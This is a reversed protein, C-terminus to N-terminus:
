REQKEIPETIKAEIPLEVYFTSGEGSVGTSEAWMRGGHMEILRRSIPLGLGTGGAKRTTSSDVQTFEQFVAELKDPPIGVGTDRVSVLINEDRRTAYISVKGKETFKLANNVLNLMVQSIRTHDAFVEVERDSDDEIFLSLSRESALPSTISVVEELLEQIRFGEPNLNMKGAEIKAMDLVDNILHLLHQGNKQILQLDNNMNETLPGDLEELLVDAFGLISNLPTRLEHSMNALFSTKLRDLERLKAVTAAQEVYLRANQLAVAVQAALTAYIGADEQTFGNVKESQVDFVGLVNDGVIMPVAMESHTEPLLPNPLYGAEQQVDSVIVVQRKRAARAVLSKKANLPIAHGEAAMKRGVEGAGAALLLKQQAADTQYIHAHYINFREKTLDVVSQLLNDPDLVTSTTASVKAVTELESARRAVESYAEQTQEFLRASELALAVQESVQQLFDKDEASIPNQPDDAVALTGIVEGAPVTLPLGAFHKETLEMRSVPRLGGQDFLFGSPLNAMKRYSQWGEHSMARYLRNIEELRGAMEQRLRTGEIAVAIQGCLSELLLQDDPGLAGATSSQVDLVGLVEDGLKIPVAIEGKTEPLLPNPKWDPDNELAPRLVTEGSAAAKGILGEGMRLRHGAARMKEGIEGYGAILVIADQTADNRLLQSHYYNFREKVLTVVRQVLEDLAPAVAIEQAIETSTRVQIGRREFATQIQQQLRNRETVDRAIGLFGTVNGESDRLATVALSVTLHTGDKHVYTWDREEYRGQRAYEVFVDFGEIPRGFEATLEKGRAVVESELHIIAPTQRGVMEEASYGLMREAGANFVTIMGDPETAIISVRTAADLVAQMRANAEALAKEVQKRETIDTVSFRVRPQDGPLRVLRVECPIDKGSSNRHTWEFVQPEGQMAAQIKEMAKETSLRGDPQYTPSMEAPGVKVLEQRSLGYLKLANENPDSFLGSTLDVIGIAEPANEIMSQLLDEAQKRVTIDRVSTARVVRDGTKYTRTLTEVPFTSGDKRICQVEYPEVTELQMKELVLGHLAPVVFQLLNKGIFDTKDTLGFMALAAPNADLITGNDHFVLGEFTADAFRRFREESENLIQETKKRETIDVYSSLVCTEGEYDILHSSLLAWYLSGDTRRFQVEFDDIFGQKRLAELVIKRDDPNAYFNGTPFGILKELQVQSVDAIAQNAYLVIGDSLRSILMPVRVRELVTKFRQQEAQLAAEAQKRETIDLFAGQTAVEGEYTTLTSYLLVDIASGDKRLMRTEYRDPVDEGAARRRAMDAVFQREDPHIFDMIPRGITEAVEYGLYRAAEQGVFKTIGKQHIFLGVASNNALRRFNEESAQLAQEAQKHLTIDEYMGLVAVTEGHEKVPIKSTRLWITSGDPTTQPEEYDLKPQGSKLVQQDDARYLEAQEKWPMDFDTKGIIEDPSSLGADNAFAQNCGLYVLNRDKWFVAQPIHNMILPFLPSASQMIPNAIRNGSDKLKDTTTM